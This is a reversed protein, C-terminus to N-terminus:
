GKARRNDTTDSNVGVGHIRWPGTNARHLVTVTVEAARQDARAMDKGGCMHNGAPWDLLHSKAQIPAIGRWRYRRAGAM